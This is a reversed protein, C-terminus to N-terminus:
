LLPSGRPKTYKGFPPTMETVVTNDSPVITSVAVIPFSPIIPRSAKKL